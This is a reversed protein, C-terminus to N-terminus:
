RIDGTLSFATWQQLSGPSYDGALLEVMAGHFASAKSQGGRIWKDYFRSFFRAACAASVEWHTSILSSAGAQILAWDLGLSDGAVGSKALGSVCAMTSVHSGEFNLQADLIEQPTLRGHHEGRTVSERDPLGKPGSLLLYSDYFPNGSEPFWGHTSFHVISHDLAKSKLGDLTADELRLMYGKHLNGNLWSIPEDLNALFTKASNKQLDQKLPVVVGVFRSPARHARGGLVRELHFASHIRSTSFWDLVRGNKFRLYQLPVNHLCDDSSYCIHDGKDLVGKELFDELWAVLTSLKFSVDPNTREPAWPVPQGWQGPNVNKTAALLESQSIRIPHVAHITGNKSVFMAYVCEEDVFYTLYHIRRRRVLDPLRAVSKYIESDQVAEGSRQTLQDAIGRSKSSEIAEFLEATRNAQQLRECLSQFLYPFESFIGGRKLPDKIGYRLSELNKRLRLLADATESPQHLRSRCLAIGWLAENELEISGNREAWAFSYNLAKLSNELEKREPSRGVFIAKAGVIQKRITLSSEASDHGNNKFDAQFSDLLGRYETSNSLSDIKDSTIYSGLGKDRDSRVIIAPTKWKDVWAKLRAGEMDFALADDQLMEDAEDIRQLNILCEVRLLRLEMEPYLKLYSDAASLAENWRALLALAKVHCRATISLTSVMLGHNNPNAAIIERARVHVAASLIAGYEPNTFYSYEVLLDGLAVIVMGPNDSGIWTLTTGVSTNQPLANVFAIREDPTGARLLTVVEDSTVISM